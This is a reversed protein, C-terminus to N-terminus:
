SKGNSFINFVPSEKTQKQEIPVTSLTEKNKNLIYANVSSSHDLQGNPDLQAVKIIEMSGDPLVKGTPQEFVNFTYRSGSSVDVANTITYNFQDQGNTIDQKIPNNSYRITNPLKELRGNRQYYVVGESTNSRNLTSKESDYIRYNSWKPNDLGEIKKGLEIQKQVDGRENAMALEAALGKKLEYKQYTTPEVTTYVSQYKDGNKGKGKFILVTKGNQDTSLQTDTVKFSNQNVKSIEKGEIDRFVLGQQGESTYIGFAGGQVDDQIRDLTPKVYGDKDSFLLNTTGMKDAYLSPNVKQQESVDTKMKSTFQKVPNYGTGATVSPASGITTFSIKRDFEDPNAMVRKVTQDPTEGEKQYQKLHLDFAEKGEPTNVYTEAFNGILSMNRNVDDDVAWLQDIAQVAGTNRGLQVRDFIQNVMNDNLNFEKGQGRAWQQLRAKYMSQIQSLPANPNQKQLEEYVRYTSVIDEAKWGKFLPDKNIQEQAVKYAEKQTEQSKRLNTEFDGLNIAPADTVTVNDSDQPLFRELTNILANTRQRDAAIKQNTQWVKDFVLDKSIKENAFGSAYDIYNKRVGRELYSNLDFPSNEIKSKTDLKYDSIAKLTDENLSGDEPVTYGANSLFRQVEKIMSPNKSKTAQDIASVKSQFDSNLEKRYNQEAKVPDTGFSNYLADRKIQNDFEPMDLLAEMAYKLKQASRSETKIKTIWGVKKQGDMGNLFQTDGDEEINKIMENAAKRIDPDKILDPTNIATYSGTSPDYGIPKKLQEKLQYKALGSNIGRIDDKEFKTIEENAKTYGEYRKNLVDATGGPLWEKKIKNMFDLQKAQGEKLSRTYAQSVEQLGSDVLTKYQNYLQLDVENNLVNPKKDSVLYTQDIGKQVGSLTQDLMEANLEPFKPISTNWSWDYNPLKDFRSIM